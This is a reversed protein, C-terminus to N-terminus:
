EDKTEIEVTYDTYETRDVEVDVNKVQGLAGFLNVLREKYVNRDAVTFSLMMGALFGFLYYINSTNNVGYYLSVGGFAFGFAIMLYGIGRDVKRHDINM